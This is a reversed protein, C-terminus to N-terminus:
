REHRHHRRVDAHDVGERPDRDVVIAGFQGSHYIPKRGETRPRDTLRNLEDVNSSDHERFPYEAINM